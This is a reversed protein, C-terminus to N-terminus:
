EDEKIRRFAIFDPLGGSNMMLRKTFPNYKSKGRKFEEDIVNNPNKIVIWGRKELDKKTILEFRAGSARNLRGQKKKDIM